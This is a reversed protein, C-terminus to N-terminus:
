RIIRSKGTVLWLMMWLVAPAIILLVCAIASHMALNSGLWQSGYIALLPIGPITLFRM